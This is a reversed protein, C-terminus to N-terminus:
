PGTATVVFNSSTTNTRFGGIVLIPGNTANTPVTAYIQYNTHIFEAFALGGTAGSFSVNTVSNLNAGHITVVTGVPGNTPSFGGILPGIVGSNPYYPNYYPNQENPQGPQYTFDSRPFQGIQGPFQQYRGADIPSRIGPQYYPNPTAPSRTVNPNFPQPQILRGPPATGPPVGGPPPPLPPRPQGPAGRPVQVEPGVSTAPVYAVSNVLTDPTGPRGAFGLTARVMKPLQNSALWESDWDNLNTNWFELQFATLNSALTIAYAEENTPMLLLSQRMVLMNGGGAGPDVSFTVRRVRQDGFMGGGPFSEPLYAVVSLLAFKDDTTDAVFQYHQINQQFLVASQLAVEVANRAVRERQVQAAADLGVQAGRLIATWSSYVAVIVGGLIALALLVEILTFALPRRRPQPAALNM